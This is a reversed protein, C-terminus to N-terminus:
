RVLPEAPKMPDIAGTARNVRDRAPIYGRPIKLDDRSYYRWGGNEFRALYVAGLDDLAASL